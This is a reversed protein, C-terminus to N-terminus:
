SDLQDRVEKLYRSSSVLSNLCIIVAIAILVSGFLLNLSYFLPQVCTNYSKTCKM